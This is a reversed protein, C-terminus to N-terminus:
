GEYIYYLLLPLSEQYCNSTTSKHIINHTPSDYFLDDSKVMRTSIHKSFDALNYRIYRLYADSAWRGIMMVTVKDIGVNHLINAFSTRISHTGIRNIKYHKQLPDIFLIHKRLHKRVEESTIEVLRNNLLFTNVKSKMSTNTYSLIRQKLFAWSKVPCLSSSSKHQIISQHKIETKQSIFTIEIFDATHISKIDEM